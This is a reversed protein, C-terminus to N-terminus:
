EERSKTRISAPTALGGPLQPLEEKDLEGRAVGKLTQWHQRVLSRDLLSDLPHRKPLASPEAKTRWFASHDLILKWVREEDHTLLEPYYLALNILRDPEDVDWSLKHAEAITADEGRHDRVIVQQLVQEVAWEIFSSATRRHKRSALEVGYRLKPDLRVTVIESRGLKGGGGTKKVV